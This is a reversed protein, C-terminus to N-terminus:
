KSAKAHRRKRHFDTRAAEVQEALEEETLGLAELKQGVAKAAERFQRLREERSQEHEEREKMFEQYETMPIIAMIPMGEKEVVFHEQGSFVRRSLQSFNRHVYTSPITVQMSHRKAAM